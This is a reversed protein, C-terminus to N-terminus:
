GLMTGGLHCGVGGEVEPIYVGGRLLVQALPVEGGEGLGVGEVVRRMVVWVVGRLPAPVFALLGDGVARRLHVHHELFRHEERVPVNGGLDETPGGDLKAGGPRDITPAISVPRLRSSARRVSLAPACPARSRSWPTPCVHAGGCVAFILLLIIFSQRRASLTGM